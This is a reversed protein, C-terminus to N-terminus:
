ISNIKKLNFKCDKKNKIQIKNCKKNTIKILKNKELIPKIKEYTEKDLCKCSDLMKDSFVYGNKDLDLIGQILAYNNINSFKNNFINIKKNNNKNLKSQFYILNYFFYDAVTYGFDDTQNVDFDKYKNKLEKIAINLCGNNIAKFVYKNCHYIKNPNKNIINIISGLQSELYLENNKNYKKNSQKQVSKSIQEIYEDSIENFKVMNEFYNLNKRIIGKEGLLEFYEMEKNNKVFEIKEILDTKKYLEYVKNDGIISFLIKTLTISPYEELYQKILVDDLEKNKLNEKIFPLVMKKFSINQNWIFPSQEKFLNIIEKKHHKALISFCKKSETNPIIKNLEQKSLKMGYKDMCENLNKPDHIIKHCKNFCNQTAWRCNPYFNKWFDKQEKSIKEPIKNQILLFPDFFNKQTKDKYNIKFGLDIFTKLSFVDVIRKNLNFNYQEFDFNYKKLIKIQKYWHNFEKQQKDNMDFDWDIQYNQVVFNLYSIKNTNFLDGDQKKYILRDLFSRKGTYSDRDYIKNFNSEIIQLNKEFDQFLFKFIFDNENLKCGSEKLIFFEELTKINTYVNNIINNIDYDICTYKYAYSGIYKYVNNNFDLNIDIGLEIMKKLNSIRINKNKIEFNKLFISNDLNKKNFLYQPDDIYNLYIPIIKELVIGKKLGINEIIYPEKYNPNISKYDLKYKDILIKFNNSLFVDFNANFFVCSMNKKKKNVVLLEKKILIDLLNFLPKSNSKFNNSYYNNEFYEYGLFYKKNITENNKNIKIVDNEILIIFDNIPIKPICSDSVGYKLQYKINRKHTEILKQLM